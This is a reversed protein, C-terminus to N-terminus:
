KLMLTTQLLIDLFKFTTSLINVIWFLIILSMFSVTLVNIDSNNDLTVEYDEFARGKLRFAALTLKTTM